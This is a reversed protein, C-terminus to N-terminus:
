SAANLTTDVCSHRADCFKAARDTRARLASPSDLQTVALFVALFTSVLAPL